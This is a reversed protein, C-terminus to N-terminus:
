WHCWSSCHASRCLCIAYRPCPRILLFTAKYGLRNFSVSGFVRWEEHIYKQVLPTREKGRAHRWKNKCGNSSCYPVFEFHRDTDIQEFEPQTGQMSSETKQGLAPRSLWFLHDFGALMAVCLNVFMIRFSMCTWLTRSQPKCNFSHLIEVMSWSHVM